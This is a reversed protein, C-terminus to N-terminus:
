GTRPWRSPWGHGRERAARYGCPTSCRCPGRISPSSSRCKRACGRGASHASSSFSPSFSRASSKSRSVAPIGPLTSPAKARRWRTAGRARASIGGTVQRAGTRDDIFQIVGAGSEPRGVGLAMAQVVLGLGADGPAGKAQRLLRASTGDWVRAMSRLVDGLQRAPDQPFPEDTETEYLALFGAVTACDDLVFVEPDLHAVQLAYAQIFRLYLADAAQAGRSRALAAHRADNMGINLVAGPGGWDAVESSPRVSVLPANGFLALIDGPEAGHGAAIKRVGDFSLAVTRPVPLGFRILRQLCKARGGHTSAAVAAAPTVETFDTIHPQKHVAAHRGRGFM